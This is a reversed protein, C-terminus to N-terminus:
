VLPFITMYIMFCVALDCVKLCDNWGTRASVILGSYAASTQIMEEVASSLVEEAVM